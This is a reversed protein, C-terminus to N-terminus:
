HTRETIDTLRLQKILARAEEGRVEIEVDGVRRRLYPQKQVELWGTLWTHALAAACFIASTLVIAWAWSM